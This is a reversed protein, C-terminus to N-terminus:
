PAEASICAGICILLHLTCVQQVYTAASTQWIHLVRMHGAPVSSGCVLANFDEAKPGPEISNSAVVPETPARPAPRQLIRVPPPKSTPEMYNSNFHPVAVDTPAPRMLIKIQSKQVCPLCHTM